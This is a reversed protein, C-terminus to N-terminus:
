WPDAHISCQTCGVQSAVALLDGSGARTQRPDEGCARSSLATVSMVPVSEIPAVTKPYGRIPGFQSSLRAPSRYQAPLRSWAPSRATAAPNRRSVQVPSRSAPNSETGPLM